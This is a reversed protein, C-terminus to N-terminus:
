SNSQWSDAAPSFGGSRVHFAQAHALTGKACSGATVMRAASPACAVTVRYPPWRTEHCVLSPWSRRNQLRADARSPLRAMRPPTGTIKGWNPARPVPMRWPKARTAVQCSADCRRRRHRPRRPIQGSWLGVQRFRDGGGPGAGEGQAQAHGDLRLRQFQVQGHVVRALLRKWERGGQVGIKRNILQALRADAAQLAHAIRVLRRLIGQLRFFHQLERVLEVADVVLQRAGQRRCDPLWVSRRSCCPKVSATTHFGPACSAAARGSRASSSYRRKTQM